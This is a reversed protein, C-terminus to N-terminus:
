KCRRPGDTAWAKGTVTCPHCDPQQSECIYPAPNANMAHFIYDEKGPGPVNEWPGYPSKSIHLQAHDIPAADADTAPKGDPVAVTKAATIQLKAVDAGMASPKGVLAPSSLVAFGAAVGGEDVGLLKQRLLHGVVENHLEVPAGGGDAPRALITGYVGLECVCDGEIPAGDRVLTARRQPPNIRDMLIFAARDSPSLTELADKLEAGYLNNGGGERQPKLVYKDPHALAEAVVAEVAGADEAVDLDYLGAFVTRLEAAEAAPLFKELEGPAALAQQVKKCGALQYAATPCKIARSNELLARAAWEGDGLYEDPSYGARFYAVSLEWAGGRFTLAGSADAVGDQLAELLTVREMAVGHADWLEHELMRQDMQNREGPQVVVAVRRPPAGAAPPYQREYEAHAAAIGRALGATAGNKPLPLWADDVGGAYKAAVYAHLSSLVTSLCGFSSAITNLEVQLAKGNEFPADGSGPGADIMYDSRLLGLSATQASTQSRRLELLRRTFADSAATQELTAELWAADQAVREVLRNFAPQMAVLREYESRPFPFPFLAFPAHTFSLSPAEGAAVPAAYSAGHAVCWAVADGVVREQPEEVASLRGGRRRDQMALLGALYNLTQMM